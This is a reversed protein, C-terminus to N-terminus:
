VQIMPSCGVSTGIVLHPLRSPGLVNEGPQIKKIQKTTGDAMFVQTNM